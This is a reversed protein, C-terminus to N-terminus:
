KSDNKYKWIYGGATKYGYANNCVGMIGKRGIGTMREAERISEYTGIINGRMDIQVVQKRTSPINHPKNCQKCGKKSNVSSISEYGCKHCKWHVRVSSSKTVITPLLPYNKEYNWDLLLEPRKNAISNEKKSYDIIKYIDKIDLEINIDANTMLYNNFLYKVKEELDQRSLNDLYIKKSPSKIKPCRPERVRILSIGNSKCLKDKIIDKQIDKHWAEGDYEIATKLAPIYIDLEMKNLFDTKYNEIAAKFYKKTYYYIVKEPFSIQTERFCKPCGRGRVRDSVKAHWSHKCKKCIWYVKIHSYQTVTKPNINKNKIYDWEEMLEPHLYFLDNKGTVAKRGSCYPCGTGHSRSLVKAQWNGSCLHCKWFANYGSGYTVETPNKKNKKYDWDLVLEPNTTQLDNFGILVVRNTCVPCKRGKSRNCVSAEWEHKKSCSWWIKKGSGLTLNNLNISKNKDYNYERMLEKNDKLLNSM